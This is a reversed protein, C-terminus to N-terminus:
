QFLLGCHASAVRGAASILGSTNKVTGSSLALTLIFFLNFVIVFMIDLLASCNMSIWILSFRLFYYLNQLPPFVFFVVGGSAIFYIFRFRSTPFSLLSSLCVTYLITTHESFLFYHFFSFCQSAPGRMCFIVCVNKGSQRILSSLFM